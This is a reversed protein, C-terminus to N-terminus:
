EPMRQPGGVVDGSSAGAAVGAVQEGVEARGFGGVGFREQV